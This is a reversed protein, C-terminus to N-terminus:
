YEPPLPGAGGWVTVGPIHTGRRVAKRHNDYIDKICSPVCCEVDAILLYRVGNYTVPITEEPTFTVPPFARDVDGRTWPTKTGRVVRGPIRTAQIEEQEKVVSDILEVVKEKAEERIKERSKAPM